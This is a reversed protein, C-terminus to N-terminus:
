RTQDAAEVTGWLRSYWPQAAGAPEAKAAPAAQQNGGDSNVVVYTVDGPMVYQLRRRAEARIYAPDSLQQAQGSLIAVRHEAAAKQQALRAVAGRQSLYQKAPYTLSLVLACVVLGLVAARGTLGNGRQSPAPPRRRPARVVRATRGARPAVPRRSVPV